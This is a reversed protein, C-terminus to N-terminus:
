DARLLLNVAPMSGAISNFYIGHVHCSDNGTEPHVAKDQIGLLIIQDSRDFNRYEALTTPIIATMEKTSNAPISYYPSPFPDNLFTAYLCDHLEQDDHLYGESLRNTPCFNSFGGSEGCGQTKIVLAYYALIIARENTETIVAGDKEPLFDLSPAVVSAIYRIVRSENYTNEVQYKIVLDYSDEQTQNKQKEWKASQVTLLLEEPVPEGNVIVGLMYSGFSKNKPMPQQAGDADRFYGGTIGVHYVGAAPTIIEKSVDGSQTWNDFDAVWYSHGDKRYYIVLGLDGGVGGAFQPNDIFTDDYNLRFQLRVDKDIKFYYDDSGDMGCNDTYVGPQCTSNTQDKLGFYGALGIIGKFSQSSNLAIAKGEEMDPEEDEAFTWAASVPTVILSYEVPKYVTMREGLCALEVEYSGETLPFPGHPLKIDNGNAAYIYGEWGTSIKVYAFDQKECGLEVEFHVVASENLNFIIDTFVDSSGIPHGQDDYSGHWPFDGEFVQAAAPSAGAIIWLVIFVTCMKKWSYNVLM